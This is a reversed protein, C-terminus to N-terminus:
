RHCKLWVHPTLKPFNNLNLGSHAATAPQLLGVTSAAHVPLDASNVHCHKIILKRLTEHAVKVPRGTCPTIPVSPRASILRRPPRLPARSRDTQRPIAPLRPISAARLARRGHHAGSNAPPGFTRLSRSHHLESMPGGHPRTAKTICPKTITVACRCPSNTASKADWPGRSPSASTIPM